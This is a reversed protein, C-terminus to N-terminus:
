RTNFTNKSTRCCRDLNTTAKTLGELNISFIPEEKKKKSFQCTICNPLYDALVSLGKIMDKKKMHPVDAFCVCGFLKPFSLSPKYRYCPEFSTKDELTTTPLRNQLFVVTDTEEAWLNQALEKEHLLSRTMEM